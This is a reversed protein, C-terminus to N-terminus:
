RAADLLNGALTARNWDADGLDLRQLPVRVELRASGWDDPDFELSGESGSVTGLAQSFGAHSVAFIVRTHVPDLAYRATGAVLPLAGCLLVPAALAALFISRFRAPLRSMAPMRPRHGHGHPKRRAGPTAVIREPTSRSTAMRSKQSHRNSASDPTRRAATGSNGRNRTSPGPSPSG